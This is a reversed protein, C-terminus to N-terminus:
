KKIRINITNIKNTERFYAGSVGEILYKFGFTKNMEGENNKINSDDISTSDFVWNPIAGIINVELNEEILNETKFNLVHTFGQLSVPISNGKIKEIELKYNTNSLMYNSIDLFYDEDQLSNSFDVAMSFGFSGTNQNKKSKKAESIPGKSGESLKFSGIKNSYLIKFNLPISKKIPQFVIRNLYGGKINDIINNNLISEIQKENGFIWLYYPRTDKISTKKNEKDYYIGNFKSELQIIITTLDFNDIKEAFNIKIGVSQNNLYEVANKGNGPSFVFDSVLISVNNEDVSNILKKLINSLDSTSRNGGRQRFTSPELREIFDQIDPSLANKKAYPIEKNIYYLNLSDCIGSIKIDGLLNYNTTEFETVGKVYGDMSASNELYFNFNFKEINNTESNVPQWIDNSNITLKKANFLKTLYLKVKANDVEDNSNKFLNFKKDKSFSILEILELYEKESITNDKAYKIAKDQFNKFDSTTCGSLLSGIFFIIFIYKRM